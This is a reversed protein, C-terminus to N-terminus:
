CRERERERKGLSFLLYSPLSLVCLRQTLIACRINCFLNANENGTVRMYERLSFIIFIDFYYFLYNYIISFIIICLLDRAVIIKLFILKLFQSELSIDFM